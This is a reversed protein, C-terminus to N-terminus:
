SNSSGHVIEDARHQYCAIFLDQTRSFSDYFYRKTLGATACIFDVTSARYGVTGFIELGAEVLQLQRQAIRDEAQAESPDTVTTGDGFISVAVGWM